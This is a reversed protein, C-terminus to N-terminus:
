MPPYRDHTSRRLDIDYEGQEFTDITILTSWDCWGRKELGAVEKARAEKARPHHYAADKRSLLQTVLVKESWPDIHFTTQDDDALSADLAEVTATTPEHHLQM